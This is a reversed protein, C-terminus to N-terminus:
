RSGDSTRRPPPKVGFAKFTNLDAASFGAEAESEALDHKLWQLSEEMDGGLRYAILAAPRHFRHYDDFPSVKWFEVWAKFESPAMARRWEAVTRGGLALALM